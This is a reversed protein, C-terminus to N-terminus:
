IKRAQALGHNRQVAVRFVWCLKDKVASREGLLRAQQRTHHAIALAHAVLNSQPHLSLHRLL